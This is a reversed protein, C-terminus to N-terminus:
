KNISFEVWANGDFYIFVADTSINKIEMIYHHGRPTMKFKDNEYQSAGIGDRWWWNGWQNFEVKLSDTGVLEVSVGDTAKAMNYQAVDYLKGTTKGELLQLVEELASDGGINRLMFTGRYNDPVNLLYVEDKDYWTFTDLLTSYIRQSDKWMFGMVLCFYLAIVGYTGLAIKGVIHRISLLAYALAPMLFALCLYTYRDNESYQLYHFYLPAVPLILILASGLLFAFYLRGVSLKSKRLVIYVVASAATLLFIGGFIPFSAIGYVYIQMPYPTFRFLAISKILYKLEASALAFPDLMTPDLPHHGIYQGLFYRNILLFILIIGVIVGLPKLDILSLKRNPCTLHLWVLIVPLVLTFEINFLSIILVCLAIVLYRSRQNILYRTYLEITLLMFVCASLYNFCAKFAVVEVQYPFVLFLLASSYLFLRSVNVSYLKGLTKLMRMLLYGNLAHLGAFALYWPLASFGFLASFSYLLVFPVYYLGKIGFCTHAGLLSTNQFCDIWGIFDTVFGAGYVPIFVLLTFALLLIFTGRGPSFDESKPTLIQM